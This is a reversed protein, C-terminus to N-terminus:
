KRMKHLFGIYLSVIAVLIHLWSDARNNAIFGLVPSDGAGFGLLAVVGYVIGFIQFFLQSARQSKRSTWYAIAGTLIHIFNHPGNVHFIGLLMSDHTFGPIFGLIGVAIFIIGFWKAIKKFNV